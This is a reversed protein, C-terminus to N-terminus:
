NLRWIEFNLILAILIWIAYPILLFAAIPNVVRFWRITIVIVIFLAIIDILALLPRHLGFFLLSWFGTLLLLFGFHYLATKVWKHYFGKSWVIGAAIGMLLFMLMWLSDFFWGDPHFSPKQLSPYWELIGTQTAVTGIFGFLLSIFIAISSRIVLKQTM